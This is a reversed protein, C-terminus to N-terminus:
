YYKPIFLLIIYRFVVSFYFTERKEKYSLLAIYCVFRLKWADDMVIFDCQNFTVVFDTNYSSLRWIDVM